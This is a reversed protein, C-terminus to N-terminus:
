GPARLIHFGGRGSRVGGPVQAQLRRLLVRVRDQAHDQPQLRRHPCSSTRSSPPTQSRPRDGDNADFVVLALMAFVALWRGETTQSTLFAAFATGAALARPLLNAKDGRQRQAPRLLGQVPGHQAGVGDEGAHRVRPHGPLTEAPAGHGRREGEAAGGGGQGRAPVPAGQAGRGDVRLPPRIRRSSPSTRTFAPAPARTWRVCCTSPWASPGNTRRWSSPGSSTPASTPSLSSPTTPSCSARERPLECLVDGENVRGMAKVGRYRMVTDDVDGFYAVEVNKAQVGREKRWAAYELQRADVASAAEAVIRLFGQPHYPQARAPHLSPRARPVIARAVGPTDM